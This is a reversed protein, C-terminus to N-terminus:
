NEKTHDKRDFRALRAKRREEDSLGRSNNASGLRHGTVGTFEAIDSFMSKVGGWNGTAQAYVLAAVAGLVVFIMLDGGSIGLLGPTGGGERRERAAEADTKAYDPREIGHEDWYRQSRPAEHAAKHEERVNTNPVWKVAADCGSCAVVVLACLRRRHRSM